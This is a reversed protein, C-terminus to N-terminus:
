TENIGERNVIKKGRESVKESSIGMDVCKRFSLKLENRPKGGILHGKCQQNKDDTNKYTM